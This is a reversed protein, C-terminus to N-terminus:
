NGSSEKKDNSGKAKGTEDKPLEASAATQQDVIGAKKEAEALDKLQERDPTANSMNMEKSATM